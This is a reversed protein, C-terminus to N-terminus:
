MHSISLTNGQFPLLWSVSQKHKNYTDKASCHQLVDEMVLAVQLHKSNLRNHLETSLATYSLLGDKQCIFMQNWLAWDQLLCITGLNQWLEWFTQTTTSTIIYTSANGTCCPVSNHLALLLQWAQQGKKILSLPPLPCLGAATGEFLGAFPLSSSRRSNINAM